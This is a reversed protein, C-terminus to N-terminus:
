IVMKLWEREQGRDIGVDKDGKDDELGARVIWARTNNRDIIQVFEVGIETPVAHM